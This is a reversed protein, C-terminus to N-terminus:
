SRRLRGPLGIGMRDLADNFSVTMWRSVLIHEPIEVGKTSPKGGKYEDLIPAYGRESKEGKCMTLLDWCLLRLAAPDMWHAHTVEAKNLETNYRVYNVIFKPKFGGAKPDFVLPQPDPDTIDLIKGRGDVRAIHCGGREWDRAVPPRRVM